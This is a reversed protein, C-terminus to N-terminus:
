NKRSLASLAKDVIARSRVLGGADKDMRKQKPDFTRNYVSKIQAPDRLAVAIMGGQEEPIWSDYGQSRLHDFFTSQAKKYNDTNAFERPMPGTFPTEAKLHVPIVRSATNTRVYKGGEYKFNQSDNEAAYNSAENPDDTLWVGHRGVNFSPFDKDKSTGHYYTTPVGDTHAVSDGFWNQFEPTQHYPADDDVSGGDAYGVGGGQEYKRAVSVHKDDFVVYNRSGEGANRSGQDLYKIGKIGMESLRQAVAAPKHEGGFREHLDRGTAEGHGFLQDFVIEPDGIHQDIAQMIHPQEVLPKDWDLFHDPHANIRVEYMHGPNPTAGAEKASMLRNLDRTILDRNEPQTQLLGFAREIANDIGKYAAVKVNLHELSFPDFIEGTNTKYTGSSLDDRYGKAVPEAEAFYLGRGYAQAGEGTGIKSLDFQDFDHPSGHYASIGDDQADPREDM